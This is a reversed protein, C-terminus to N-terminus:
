RGLGPHTRAPGRSARGETIVVLGAANAIDVLRAILAPIPHHRGNEWGNVTSFTVGIERALAEQTLGRAARINKILSPVDTVSVEPRRERGGGRGSMTDCMMYSTMQIWTM